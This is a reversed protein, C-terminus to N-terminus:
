FMVKATRMVFVLLLVFGGFSSETGATNNPVVVTKRAQVSEVQLTGSGFVTTTVPAHVSRAAPTADHASSGPSGVPFVTNIVIVAPPKAIGASPVTVRPRMATRAVVGTFGGAL